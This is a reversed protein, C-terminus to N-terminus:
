TTRGVKRKKRSAGARAHAVSPASSRSTLVLAVVDVDICLGRADHRVVAETRMRHLPSGARVQAELCAVRMARLRAHPDGAMLRSLEEVNAGHPQLRATPFHISTSGYYVTGEPEIRTAGESVVDAGEFLERWRYDSSLWLEVNRRHLLSLGRTKALGPRPRKAFSVSPDYASFDSRPSTRVRAPLADRRAGLVQGDAHARRM